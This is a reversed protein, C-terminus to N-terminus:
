GPKRGRPGGIHHDSPRKYEAEAREEMHEGTHAVAQAESLGARKGADIHAQQDLMRIRALEPPLKARGPEEPLEGTM